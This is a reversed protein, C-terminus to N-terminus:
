AYHGEFKLAYSDLGESVRTLRPSAVRMVRSAETTQFQHASWGLSLQDARAAVPSRLRKSAMLPILRSPEQFQTFLGGSAM